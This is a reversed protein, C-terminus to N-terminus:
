SSHVRGARVSALFPRDAALFQDLPLASPAFALVEVGPEAEIQDRWDDLNWMTAHVHFVALVVEPGPPPYVHHLIEAVGRVELTSARPGWEERLERVLADSPSEGREVKGGPLELQGAGHEAAASRRQVLLRGELWVLGAAVLLRPEARLGDGGARTNPGQPDAM